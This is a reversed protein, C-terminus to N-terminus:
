NHKPYWAEKYELQVKKCYVQTWNYPGKKRKKIKAKNFIGDKQIINSKSMTM